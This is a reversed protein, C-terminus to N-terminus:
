WMSEAGACASADIWPGVTDEPAASERNVIYLLLIDCQPFYPWEVGACEKGRSLGLHLDLANNGENGQGSHGLGGRSRGGIRGHWRDGEVVGGDNRGSTVLRKTVVLVLVNTKSGNGSAVETPGCGLPGRDLGLDVSSVKGVGIDVAGGLLVTQVHVNPGGSATLALVKGDHDPGVATSESSAALRLVGRLTEEVQGLVKNEDRVVVTKTHSAKGVAWGIVVLTTDGVRGDPIDLVSELPRLLVDALKTAVGVVNRSDTERGTAGLDHELQRAEGAASLLAEVLGVDHRRTEDRAGAVVVGLLEPQVDRGSNTTVASVKVAHALDVEGSEDVSGRINLVGVGVLELGANVAVNDGVGVLGAQVSTVEVEATGQDDRVLLVFGVALGVRAHVGGSINRGLEADEERGDSVVDNLLKKLEVGLIVVLAGAEAEGVHLLREVQSALVEGKSVSELVVGPVGPDRKVRGRM